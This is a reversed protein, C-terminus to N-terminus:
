KGKTLGPSFLITSNRGIINLYKLNNRQCWLHSSNYWMIKKIFYSPAIKLQIKEMITM